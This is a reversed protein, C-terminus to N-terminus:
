KVTADDVMKQRKEKICTELAAKTLTGNQAICERRLRSRFIARRRQASRAGTQNEPAIETTTSTGTTLPTESTQAFAQSAQFAGFGLLVSFLATKFPHKLMM